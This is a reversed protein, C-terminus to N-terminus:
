RSPPSTPTRKVHVYVTRRGPRKLPKRARRHHSPGVTIESSQAVVSPPKCPTRRAPLSLGARTSRWSRWLFCRRATPTPHTAHLLEGATDGHGIRKAYPSGFTCYRADSRNKKRARHRARTGSSQPSAGTTGDRSGRAVRRAERERCSRLCCGFRTTGGHGPRRLGANEHQCPLLRHDRQEAEQGTFDLELNVMRTSSRHQTASGAQSASVKM